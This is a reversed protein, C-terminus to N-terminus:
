QNAKKWSYYAEKPTPGFSTSTNPSDCRWVFEPYMERVAPIALTIRPKTIPM